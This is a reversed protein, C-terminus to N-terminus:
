DPEPYNVLSPITFCNYYQKSASDYLQRVEFDHADAWIPEGYYGAAAVLLTDPATALIQKLQKVTMHSM